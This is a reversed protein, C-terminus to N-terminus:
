FKAIIRYTKKGDITRGHADREALMAKEAGMAMMTDFVQTGYKRFTDIHVFPGLVKVATTNVGANTLLERLRFAKQHSPTM